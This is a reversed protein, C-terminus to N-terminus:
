LFVSDTFTANRFTQAFYDVMRANFPGPQQRAWAVARRFADRHNAQAPTNGPNRQVKTSLVTRGTGDRQFTLQGGLSGRLGRVVINSTVLAM